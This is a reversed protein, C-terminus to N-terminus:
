FPEFSEQRMSVLNDVSWVLGRSIGTLLYQGLRALSFSYGAIILEAKLTPRVVRTERRERNM